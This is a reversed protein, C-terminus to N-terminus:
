VGGIDESWLLRGGDGVRAARWVGAPQREVRWAAEGSSWAFGGGDPLAEVEAPPRGAPRALLLALYGQGPAARARLTLAREAFPGYRAGDPAAWQVARWWYFPLRPEDFGLHEFSSIALDPAAPQAFHVDLDVGFQGTFRASAAGLRAEEALVQLNWDTPLRGDLADCVVIAECERVYAVSRQWTLPEIDRRRASLRFDFEARRVPWDGWTYLSRVTMDGAIFDVHRGLSAARVQFAHGWTENWRDFSVRNHLWACEINPNYQCGFDALVPRGYAYWFLSGEDPDFHGRSPGMKVLLYGQEGEPHSARFIAGLGHHARSRAQGADPGDPLRRDILCAPQWWILDSHFEHLSIPMSGARRWAAMMRQSFAPDSSATAKAAWAFCAQLSQCWGYGTVHGITPLMCFGTRPDRPTQSAALYDFSRKM